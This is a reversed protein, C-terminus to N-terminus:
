GNLLRVAMFLSRGSTGHRRSATTERRSRGSKNLPRLVAPVPRAAISPRAALRPLFVGVAGATQHDGNRSAKSARPSPWRREARDDPYGRLREKEEELLRQDAPTLLGERTVATLFRRTALTSSRSNAMRACIDLYHDGKLIRNRTIHSRRRPARGLAM